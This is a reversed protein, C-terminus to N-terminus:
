LGRICMLYNDISHVNKKKKKKTLCVDPLYSRFYGFIRYIVVVQTNLLTILVSGSRDTWGTWGNVLGIDPASHCLFREVWFDSFLGSFRHFVSSVPFFRRNLLNSPNSRAQDKKWSFFLFSIVLVIAEIWNRRREEKGWLPLVPPFGCEFYELLVPLLHLYFPCQSENWSSTSIFM